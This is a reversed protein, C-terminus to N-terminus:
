ADNRLNQAVFVVLDYVKIGHRTASSRLATECLPCASVIIKAGATSAEKVRETAIKRAMDRYAIYTVGGAGGGCCWANERNRQMEVFNTKAITKIIERPYDYVGEYRGLHCPDHYTIKTDEVWEQLEIKHEKLLRYILESSHIVKFPTEGLLEPYVTKLAHYCGACPAVVQKAGSKLIASVNHKAIETATALSGNFIQPAGCCWEEEALYSVNIGAQHLVKVMSKAIEQYAYLFYCGAFLLLDGTRPLGLENAFISKKIEDENFVNHKKEVASNIKELQSPVGLKLDVIDQRMSLVIKPLDVQVPCHTLCNACLLCSKFIQDPLGNSSYKLFGELIARAINVKGRATSSEFGLVERAPCIKYTGKEPYVM